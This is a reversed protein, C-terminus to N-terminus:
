CVVVGRTKAGTVGVPLVHTLLSSLSLTFFFSIEMCTDNTHRPRVAKMAGRTACSKPVGLLTFTTCAVHVAVSCCLRTADQTHFRQTYVCRYVARHIVIPITAWRNENGGAGAGDADTDTQGVRKPAMALLSDALLSDVAYTRASRLLPPVMGSFTRMTTQRMLTCVLGVVKAMLEIGYLGTCGCCLM